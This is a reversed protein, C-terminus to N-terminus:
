LLLISTAYFCAYVPVFDLCSFCWMNWAMSAVLPAVYGLDYFYCIMLWMPLVTWLVALSLWWRWSQLVLCFLFCRVDAHCALSVAGAEDLSM